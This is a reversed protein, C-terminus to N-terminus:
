RFIVFMLDHSSGSAERTTPRSPPPTEERGEAVAPNKSRSTEKEGDHSFSNINSLIKNSVCTTGEAKLISDHHNIDDKAVNDMANEKEVSEEPPPLSWAPWKRPTESNKVVTGVTGESTASQM